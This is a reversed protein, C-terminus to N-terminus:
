APVLADLVKVASSSAPLRLALMLGDPHGGRLVFVVRRRPAQPARGIVRWPQPDIRILSRRGALLTGDDRVIVRYEHDRGADTGRPDVLQGRCIFRTGDKAAWHPEIRRALWWAGVGAAVVLLAGVVETV